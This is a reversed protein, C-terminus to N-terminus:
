RGSSGFRVSFPSSFDDCKRYILITDISCRIVRDIKEVARRGGQKKEHFIKGREGKREELGIEKENEERFDLM